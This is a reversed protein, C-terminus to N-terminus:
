ADEDGSDEDEFTVKKPEVSMDVERIGMGALTTIAALVICVLFM